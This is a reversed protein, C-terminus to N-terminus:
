KARFIATCLYNEHVKLHGPQYTYEIGKLPNEKLGIKKFCFADPEHLSGHELYARSACGGGCIPFYECGRCFFVDREAMEVFPKSKVIHDFDNGVISINDMERTFYVCPVVKGSPTIRFSERGCPCHHRSRLNILSAFYPDPLAVIHANMMLYKFIDHAKIPDLKLSENQKGRGTPRYWNVRWDCHYKKSMALFQNVLNESSNEAHLCNVISFSVSNENLLKLAELAWKWAHPHGRFENHDKEIPYDISVDVDNFHKKVLHITNENVSSGNTTLGQILGKSAAYAVLKWFEPVLGCEGTGYNITEVHHAVLTDVVRCAEEFSLEDDGRKGSANYCHKCRLNCLQTFGWGVNWKKIVISELM